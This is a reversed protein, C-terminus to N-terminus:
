KIRIGAGLEWTPYWRKRGKYGYPLDLYQAGFGATFTLVDELVLRHGLLASCGMIQSASDVSGGTSHEYLGLAGYVIRLYFSNDRYYKV